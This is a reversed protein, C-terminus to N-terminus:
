KQELLNQLKSYICLYLLAMNMLIPKIFKKWNLTQAM